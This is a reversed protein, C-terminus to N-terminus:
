TKPRQDVTDSESDSSSLDIQQSTGAQMGTTFGAGSGYSNAPDTVLRSKPVEIVLPRYASLQGNSSIFPTGVSPM